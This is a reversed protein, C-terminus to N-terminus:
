IAPFKNRLDESDMIGLDKLYENVMDLSHHRLQLQLDKVNIGAKVAAVAGTHKWSYLAYRGVIDLETLCKRHENNLWNTGVPKKGFGLKNTKSHSPFIYGNKYPLMKIYKKLENYFAKPIIVKQTKKNKSIEKRVEIYQESFNIDTILLLRVEKPRIYTYYIMKAAIYVRMNRPKLWSLIEKTQQKNYYMLSTHDGKKISIGAFPNKEKNYLEYITKLAQKYGIITASQLKKNVLFLLFDSADKESIFLSNKAGLWKLFGKLKSKYGLYTKHRWLNKNDALTKILVDKTKSVHIKQILIKTKEEREKLDKVRNIQGYKRMREKVGFPHEIYYEVYWRKGKIITYTISDLVFIKKDTKM